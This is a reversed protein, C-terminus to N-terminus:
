DGEAFHPVGCARDGLFGVCYLDSLGSLHHAHYASCFTCWIDDEAFDEAGVITTRNCAIEAPRVPLAQNM